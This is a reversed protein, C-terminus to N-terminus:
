LSIDQHLLILGVDHMKMTSYFKKNHVLLLSIIWDECVEGAEKWREIGLGM